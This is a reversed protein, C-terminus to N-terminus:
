VQQGGGPPCEMDRLGHGFVVEGNRRTVCTGAPVQHNDECGTSSNPTVDYLIEMTVFVEVRKPGTVLISRAWAESSFTGEGSPIVDFMCNLRDPDCFITLPELTAYHGGAVCSVNFGHEEGPPNDCYDMLACPLVSSSAVSDVSTEGVTWGCPPNVAHAAGCWSVCVALAAIIRKM